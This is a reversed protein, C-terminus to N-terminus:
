KLLLNAAVIHGTKKFPLISKISYVALFRHMLSSPTKDALGSVPHQNCEKILRGGCVQGAFAQNIGGAYKSDSCLM